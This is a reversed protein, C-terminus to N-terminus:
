HHSYAGGQPSFPAVETVVQLGLQTL